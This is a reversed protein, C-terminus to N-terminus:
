RMYGDQAWDDEGDFDDLSSFHETAYEKIKQYDISFSYLNDYEIKYDNNDNCIKLNIEYDNYEIKNAKCYETYVYYDEDNPWYSNEYDLCSFTGILILKKFKCSVYLEDDNSELIELNFDDSLQIEELNIEENELGVTKFDGLELIHSSIKDLKAVIIDHALQKIKESNDSNIENFFDIINKFVVITKDLSKALGEDNSIFYIKDDVQRSLNNLYESIFADPFGNKKEKKLEFPLETKFYKKFVNEPNVKEVYCDIASIDKKFKNYDILDKYCNEYVTREDIYEKIWKYKSNLNKKNLSCRENIHSIIENDIISLNCYEYNNNSNDILLKILINRPDFNFGKSEFINTDIFLKNM